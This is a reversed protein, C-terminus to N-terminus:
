RRGLWTFCSFLVLKFEWFQSGHKIRSHNINGIIYCNLHLQIQLEIAAWEHTNNQIKLLLISFLVCKRQQKLNELIIKPNTQCVYSTM